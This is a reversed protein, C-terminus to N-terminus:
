QPRLVNGLTDWMQYFWMRFSKTMAANEIVFGYPYDVLDIYTMKDLWCLTDSPFEGLEEPWLKYAHQVSSHKMRELYSRFLPSDYVIGRKNVQPGVDIYEEAEFWGPMAQEVQAPSFITLLETPKGHRILDRRIEEYINKIGEPGEFFRVSPRQTGKQRLAAFDASAHRLKNSLRELEKQRRSLHALLGAQDLAEFKRVNAETTETVVGRRRLSEAIDYIHTRTVGSERAIESASAIGLKLLSMYVATEKESLGLESLLQEIQAM